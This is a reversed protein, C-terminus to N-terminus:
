ARRGGARLIRQLDPEAAPRAPREHAGAPELSPHSAPRVVSSSATAALATMSSAAASAPRRSRARASRCWGRAVGPVAVQRRQAVLDGPPDVGPEGLEDHARRRRRRAVPARLQAAEGVVHEIELRSSRAPRREVLEGGRARSPLVAAALRQGPADDEVPPQRQGAADARGGARHEADGRHRLAERRRGHQGQAVGALQAEVVFGRQQGADPGVASEGGIVYRWRSVILEPGRRPRRRPRGACPSTPRGVDVASTAPPRRKATGSRCPTRTSWGRSRAARRGSPRCWSAAGRGARASAARRPCSGVVVVPRARRRADTTPWPANAPM